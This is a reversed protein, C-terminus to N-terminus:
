RDPVQNLMHDGAMETGGSREVLSDVDEGRAGLSRAATQKVIDVEDEDELVAKLATEVIPDDDFTGLLKTAWERVRDDSDDVAAVLDDRADDGRIRTLSILANRRVGVAEDDLLREFTDEHAARDLRDLAVAAEARVWQDEDSELLDSAVAPDGDQKAVAEIAFQRVEDDPDTRALAELQRVVVPPCDREALALTARRRTPADAATLQAQLDDISDDEVPTVDAASYDEKRATGLTIDRVEEVGDAGKAARRKHQTDDTM